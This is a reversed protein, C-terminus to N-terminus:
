VVPGPVIQEDVGTTALVSSIRRPEDSTVMRMADAATPGTVIGWIADEYIDDDLERVMRSIALINKFRAEEPTMVFAIYRHPHELIAPKCDTVEPAAVITAVRMDAHRAALAEVVGKWAPQQFTSASVVILLSSFFKHM